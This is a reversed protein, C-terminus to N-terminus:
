ASWAMRLSDILVSRLMTWRRGAALVLSQNVELEIGVYARPPFPLRLHSTLGDGKGAHPYNGRVRSHVSLRM